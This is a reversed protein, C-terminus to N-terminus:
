IGTTEELQSYHKDFIEQQAPTYTYEGDQPAPIGLKVCEAKSRKHALECLDAMDVCAKEEPTM